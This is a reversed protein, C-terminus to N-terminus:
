PGMCVPLLLSAMIDTAMGAAVLMGSTTGAGPGASIITGAPGAAIITGAPGAAFM